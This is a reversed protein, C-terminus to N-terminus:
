YMLKECELRLACLISFLRVPLYRCEERGHGTKIPAMKIQTPLTTSHNFRRVRSWYPRPEFGVRAM